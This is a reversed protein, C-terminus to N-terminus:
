ELCAREGQEDWEAERDFGDERTLGWGAGPRRVGGDRAGGDQARGGWEAM